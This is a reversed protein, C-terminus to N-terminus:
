KRHPLDQWGCKPLKLLVQKSFNTFFRIMWKQKIGTILLFYLSYALYRITQSLKRWWPFCNTPSSHLRPTLMLFARLSTSTQWFRNGSLWVSSCPMMQLTVSENLINSVVLFDNLCANLWSHPNVEFQQVVAKPKVRTFIEYHGRKRQLLEEYTLVFTVNSEAAINVSVSFKEM